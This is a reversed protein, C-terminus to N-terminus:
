HHLMDIEAAAIRGDGNRSRRQDLRQGFGALLLRARYAVLDVSHGRRADVVVLDHRHKRVRLGELGVLGGGMRHLEAGGGRLSPRGPPDVKVVLAQVLSESRRRHLAGRTRTILDSAGDYRYRYGNATGALMAAVAGGRLM